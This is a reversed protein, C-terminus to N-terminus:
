KIGMRLKFQDNYKRSIRVTQKTVTVAILSRDEDVKVGAVRDLNLLVSKSVRMFNHTSLKAELDSLTHKVEYNGSKLAVYVKRDLAEFYLINEINVRSLVGERKVYITDSLQGASEAPNSATMEQASQEKSESVQKRSSAEELRRIFDVAVSIDRSLSQLYTNYMIAQHYGATIYGYFRKGFTVPLVFYNNVMNDTEIGSPIVDRYDFSINNSKFKSYSCILCEASNEGTIKTLGLMKLHPVLWKSNDIMRCLSEESDAEFIRESTRPNQRFVDYKECEDYKEIRRRIVKLSGTRIGCGCSEGTVVKETTASIEFPVGSILHHLYAMANEGICYADITSTTISLVNKFKKSNEGMGVVIVDDPVRIGNRVFETVLAVATRDYICVVAQPMSVSGTMVDNVYKKACDIWHGGYLLNKPSVQLSHKKMSSIFGNVRANNEGAIGGLCHIDRCSHAEILHDTVAEFGESDNFAYSKDEANKFCTSGIIVYPM